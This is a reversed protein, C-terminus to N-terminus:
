IREKINKMLEKIISDWGYKKQTENKCIITSKKVVKVMWKEVEKMDVDVIKPQKNNSYYGNEYLSSDKFKYPFLKSNEKTLFDLVGSWGTSGVDCGCSLAELNTRGFGEGSHLSIYAGNTSCSRYLDAMQEESLNERIFKINKAGAGDPASVNTKIILMVKKNGKFLKKFTKILKNLGKRDDWHSHQWAGVALFKFVNPYVDEPKKDTNFTKTDIGLSAPILFKEDMGSNIWTTYLFQSGCIIYDFYTRAFDIVGLPMKDAEFMFEGFIKNQYAIAYDFHRDAPFYEPWNCNFKEIYVSCGLKQLSDIIGKKNVCYSCSCKQDYHKKYYLIIHKNTM